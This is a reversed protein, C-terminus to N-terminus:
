TKLIILRSVEDIFFICFDIVGNIKSLFYPIGHTVGITLQSNKFCLFFFFVSTFQPALLITLGFIKASDMLIKPGKQTLLPNLWAM